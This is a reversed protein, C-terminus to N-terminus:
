LYKVNRNGFIIEMVQVKRREYLSRKENFSEVLSSISITKKALM